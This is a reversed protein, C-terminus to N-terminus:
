PKLEEELVELYLRLFRTRKEAEERGARTQMSDALTLLKTFFHDVVFRRDDPERSECFPDVPSSLATGLHGGLMLCRSLGIAGLADLRDADRLVEAEKTEPPIGASFSHAVIAHHIAPLHGEPYGAEELLAWARDASLRSATSRDESDKAVQVCDHLWAAPVLIEPIAGEAAGIAKATGVVRELHGLDHAPDREGESISWERFLAEWDKKAM